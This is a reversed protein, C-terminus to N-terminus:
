LIGLWSAPHRTTREGPLFADQGHGEAGFEVAKKWDGGFDGTCADGFLGGNCNIYDRAYESMGNTVVGGKESAAAVVKGGPCVCFTYVTRGNELHVALKYDSAPLTGYDAAEGYQAM